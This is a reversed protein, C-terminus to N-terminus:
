ASKRDSANCIYEISSKDLMKNNIKDLDIDVIDSNNSINLNISINNYNNNISIGKTNINDNLDSMNNGVNPEGNNMISNDSPNNKNIRANHTYLIKNDNAFSNSLGNAVKARAINNISGKMKYKEKDEIKELKNVM